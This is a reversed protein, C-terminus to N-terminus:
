YLLTIKKKNKIILNEKELNSLERSVSPRPLSLELSLKTISTIYITSSRQQNSIEKLYFLIRDKINKHAFLKNQKKIKISKDSIEKLFLNLFSENTQLLKILEKKNIFIITSKKEAIVDGLYHPNSSFILANGFMENEKIYSITEEKELFTISTIKIAGKIVFGVSTCEENNTFIIDGREYDFTKYNKLFLLLNNDQKM